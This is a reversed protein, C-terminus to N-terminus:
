WVRTKVDGHNMVKTSTGTEKAVFGEDARWCGCCSSRVGSHMRLRGRTDFEPPFYILSRGPLIKGHKAIKSRSFPAFNGLLNKCLFTRRSTLFRNIYFFLPSLKKRMHSDMSRKSARRPGRGGGRPSRRALARMIFLFTFIVGNM